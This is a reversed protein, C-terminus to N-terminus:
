DAVLVAIGAGGALRWASAERQRRIVYTGPAIGSAGHEPHILYAVAKARLVGIALRTRDTVPAAWTCTHADAVLRHANGGAAGRLLDIGSPPVERWAVHEPVTVDVYREPIVILDGQAQLTDLVPIHAEMELHDLVSISAQEALQRLTVAV